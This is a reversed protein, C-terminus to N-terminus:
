WPEKEITLRPLKSRSYESKSNLVGEGRLQIRVAESLQRSLADRFSAVIKINFKPREPLNPHDVKWHKHM